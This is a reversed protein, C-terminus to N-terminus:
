RLTSTHITAAVVILAALLFIFETRKWLPAIPWSGEVGNIMLTMMALGCGYMDIMIDNFEFAEVYGPYLNIYQNWEDVLMFPVTFLVTAGFRRTVPFILFALISYQFVHIIEINMEFMIRYHMIIFGITLSLYTLKLSRNSKYKKFQVIMFLIFVVLLLISIALVVKNYVPLSMNNMVWVSLHAFPVHMYYLFVFYLSILVLNVIRHAALWHVYRQFFNSLSEM